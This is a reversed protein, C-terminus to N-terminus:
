SIWGCGEIASKVPIWEGDQKKLAQVFGRGCLRGCHHAIYVVAISKDPAFGVASLDIWGRSNPHAERYIEWSCGVKDRTSPSAKCLEPGHEFTSELEETAVFAHRIPISFKDSLLWTTKNKHTWDALAPAISKDSATASVLCDTLRATERRILLPNAGRLDCGWNNWDLGGSSTTDCPRGLIASYVEYATSDEYLVPVSSQAACLWGTLISFIVAAVKITRAMKRKAETVGVREM